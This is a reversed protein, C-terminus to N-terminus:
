ELVYYNNKTLNSFFPAYAYNEFVIMKDLAGGNIAKKKQEYKVMQRIHAFPDSEVVMFGHNIGSEPVSFKFFCSKYSELYISGNLRNSVGKMKKVEQDDDNKSFKLIYCKPAIAFLIYGEKEFSVGLLKKKYRTLEEKPLSPNPFWKHVNEKYFVEDKVVHKFGQHCDENPNGSIAYYL